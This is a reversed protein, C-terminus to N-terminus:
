GATPPPPWSASPTPSRRTAATSSRPACCCRCARADGPAIALPPRPAAKPARIAALKPPTALLAVLGDALTGRWCVYSHNGDFEHYSVDYGRAKLVDRLHRNAALMTTEHAPNGIEATGVEMWFRLPLRPSAVFDRSTKEPEEDGPGWWFSGSQSLV